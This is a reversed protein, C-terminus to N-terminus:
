AAVVASVRLPPVILPAAPWSAIRVRAAGPAAPERPALLARTTSPTRGDALMESLSLLRFTPSVAVTVMVKSSATLPRSIASKVTALPLRLLRLVLSPPIVQVAVRVGVALLSLAPM